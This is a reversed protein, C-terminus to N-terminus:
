TKDREYLVLCMKILHKNNINDIHKKKKKFTFLLIYIFLHIFTEFM